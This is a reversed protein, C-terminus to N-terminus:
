GTVYDEGQQLMQFRTMWDLTHQIFLSMLEDPIPEAPESKITDPNIFTGRYKVRFDLHPGTSLGTSGVYGIVQGQRVQVGKRIGRGFKELHGYCTEYADGHKIQVYNGYGGKWGSFIIVGDGLASVPTGRPAAYDIGLHPRYEKLIPHFRRRSFGSSIRRYQLPTKLFTRKMSNGDRDFYEVRGDPFTFAFALFTKGSNVFRAAAIKGPVAGLDKLIRNTYFLEFGDGRRLGSTFDVQWGFLDAMDLILEPPVGQRIAANWLSDDITGSASELNTFLLVDMEHAEWRDDESRIIRVTRDVANSIRMEVLRGSDMEKYFATKAGIKLKHVPLIDDLVLSITYVDYASIGHRNLLSALTDGKKFVDGTVARNGPKPLTPPLPQTHNRIMQLGTEQQQHHDAETYFWSLVVIVLFITAILSNRVM